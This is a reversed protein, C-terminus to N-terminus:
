RVFGLQILVRELEDMTLPKILTALAGTTQARKLTEPQDDATVIVVPVDALRPDRRFYTLLEFGTLGPMNIDMFIIDPRHREAYLIAARPGFLARAAIKYFELMRCISNATARDDDIVLATRM